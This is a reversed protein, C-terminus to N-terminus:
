ILFLFLSRSLVAGAVSTIASGIAGLGLVTAGLATWGVRSWNTSGDENKFFGKSSSSSSTYNSNSLSSKGSTARTMAKQSAEYQYKLKLKELAIQEDYKHKEFNVSDKYAEKIYKDYSDYLNKAEAHQKTDEPIMQYYAVVEPSYHPGAKTIADKMAILNEEAHKNQIKQLVSPGMQTAYAFCQTAQEPVCELLAYAMSYDGEAMCEAVHNKLSQVNSEYWSIIQEEASALMDQMAQSNRIEGAANISAEEYSNGAGSIQQTVGAYINGDVMNGVFIVANYTCIHKQPITGTIERKVPVLYAAIAFCPSAGNAGLGQMSTIQMLREAIRIQVEPTIDETVAPPLISLKINRKFLIVEPDLHTEAKKQAIAAEREADTLSSTRESPNFKTGTNAPKGCGTLTACLLIFYILKKM